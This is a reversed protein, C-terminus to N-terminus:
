LRATRCTLRADEAKTRRDRAIRLITVLNVVLVLGEAALAGWSGSVANTVMWLFAAVALCLRMPIGRLMFMAFTGLLGAALPIFDSPGQWVLAAVFLTALLMAIMAGRHRPMRRALFIRLIILGSITSAVWAGFFAFQIAFAVNGLVLIALLRDDSKSSFAVVCLGLAVLGAIQGAMDPSLIDMM